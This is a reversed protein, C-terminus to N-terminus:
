RDGWSKPMPSGDTRNVHEVRELDARGSSRREPPESHKIGGIRGRRETWARAFTGGAGSMVLECLTRSSGLRRIGVDCRSLSVDKAVTMAALGAYVRAYVISPQWFGVGVAEKLRRAESPSGM